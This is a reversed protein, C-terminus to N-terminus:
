KFNNNNKFKISLASKSRQLNSKQSEINNSNFKGLKDYSLNNSINNFNKDNYRLNELIKYKKNHLLNYVSKSKNLRYNKNFEKNTKLLTKISEKIRDSEKLLNSKFQRYTCLKLAIKPLFKSKSINHKIMNEYDNKIFFRKASYYSKKKSFRKYFSINDNYINVEREIKDFNFRQKDFAPCYKPTNYKSYPSPTTAMFILRKLMINNDNNRKLERARIFERLYSKNKLFYPTESAKSNLESKTNLLKELHIKNVRLLEKESCIFNNNITNWM